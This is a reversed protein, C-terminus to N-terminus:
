LGSITLIKRSRKLNIEYEDSIVAVVAYTILFAGMLVGFLACIGDLRTIWYLECM